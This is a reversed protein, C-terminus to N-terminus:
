LNRPIVSLLKFATHCNFCFSLCNLLFIKYVHVYMYFDQGTKQPSFHFSFLFTKSHNIVDRAPEFLAERSPDEAYVGGSSKRRCKLPWFSFSLLFFFFKRGHILIIYTAQVALSIIELRFFHFFFFIGDCRRGKKELSSNNGVKGVLSLVAAKKRAGETSSSSSSSSFKAFKELFCMEGINSQFAIKIGRKQTTLFNERRRTDFFASREKRM